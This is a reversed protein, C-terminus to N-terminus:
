NRGGVLSYIEGSGYALHMLPITIILFIDKLEKTRLISEIACTLVVFFYFMLFLISLSAFLHSILTLVILSLMFFIAFIPIMSIFKVPQPTKLKTAGYRFIQKFFNKFNSRAYHILYFKPDMYVRWGREIARFTFDLEEGPILKPNFGGVSKYVGKRIMMNCGIIKDGDFDRELKKGQVYRKRMPGAGLSSFTHGFLKVLFPARKPVIGPGSIIGTSDRNFHKLGVDIWREPIIVDDDIFVLIDARAKKFGLNRKESLDGKKFHVPYYRILKQYNKLKKNKVKGIVIIEINHKGKNDFISDLTKFLSDFGLTAIIISLEPKM